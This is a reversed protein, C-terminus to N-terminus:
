HLGIPHTGSLFSHKEMVAPIEMSIISLKLRRIDKTFSEKKRCRLSNTASSYHKRQLTTQGKWGNPAGSASQTPHVPGRMLLIDKRWTAWKMVSKYNLPLLVPLEQPSHISKGVHSSYGRSEPRGLCQRSILIM